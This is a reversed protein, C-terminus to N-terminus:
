KLFVKFLDSIPRPEMIMISGYDHGRYQAGPSYEEEPQSNPAYKDKAKRLQEYIEKAPSRKAFETQLCDMLVAKIEPGIFLILIIIWHTSLLPFNM